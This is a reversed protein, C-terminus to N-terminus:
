PQRGAYLVRLITVKDARSRYLVAIRGEFGLQRIGPGLEPVEPCSLPFLELVAVRRELRAIYAAARDWGSDGAILEALERIDALAEPSFEIRVM